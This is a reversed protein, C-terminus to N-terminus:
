ISLDSVFILCSNFCAPLQSLTMTTQVTILKNIMSIALAKIPQAMSFANNIPKVGDILWNHGSNIYGIPPNTIRSFM